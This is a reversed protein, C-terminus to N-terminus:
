LHQISGRLSKQRGTEPDPPIMDPTDNSKSSSHLKQVTGPTASRPRREGGTSKQGSMILHSPVLSDSQHCQPLRMGFLEAILGLKFTRSNKKGKSLRQKAAMCRIHDDFIFKADILTKLNQKSRAM